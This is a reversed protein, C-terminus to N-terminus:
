RGPEAKVKIEESRIAVLGLMKQDPAAQIEVLRVPTPEVTRFFGGANFVDGNEDHFDWLSLKISGGAPLADVHRVFRQNVWVDFDRYSKATSNVIEIKEGRRFVQMDVMATQHLEHPYPRTAWNPDYTKRACGALAPALLFLLGVVFTCRTRVNPLIDRPV